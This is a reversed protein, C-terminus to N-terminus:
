AKTLGIGPVESTLANEIDLANKVAGVLLRHYWHRDIFYFLITAFVIAALVPIGVNVQFHWIQFYPDTMRSLVVGILALLASVFSIYFNRIKMCIENFHQQVEISKKWAEITHDLNPPTSQSSSM